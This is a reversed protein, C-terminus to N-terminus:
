DATVCNSLDKFNGERHDYPTLLEICSGDDEMVAEFPLRYKGSRVEYHGLGCIGNMMNADLARLALVNEIATQEDPILFNLTQDEQDEQRSL